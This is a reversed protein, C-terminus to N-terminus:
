FDNIDDFGFEHMLYDSNKWDNKVKVWINLFVKTDFFAELEERAMSGAAKLTQGNKGIIIGKHSPKDCYVTMELRLLGPKEEFSTTEVAIGHPVEQELLRLLKERLTESAIQRETQDTMMDEPYIAEGEPLYDKIIDLLEEMGDGTKASIPIIEKFDHLKEYAAMVPLMDAKPVSDAKNLLLICAVGEKEIREVLLREPKAPPKDPAVMLLALDIDAISDYVSRVMRQGLRSRAKHLGPTDMFIYQCGQRNLIGMIRNRTTQPKPSVIAVKEGVLLNLLTSKGVNPRGLISIIGCREINFSAGGDAAATGGPRGLGVSELAREQIDRLPQEPRGGEAHNHGLLHLISHTLLFAIERDPGHGYEEAQAAAREVSIIVDGIYARGEELEFPPAIDALSKRPDIEFMPFSLVDTPSDMGRHELNLERIGEDDTFCLALECPLGPELGDLMAESVATLIKEYNEFLELGEPPPDITIKHKIM